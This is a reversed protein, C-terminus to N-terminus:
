FSARVGLMYQTQDTDFVTAGHEIRGTLGWMPTARYHLGLAISTTGGFAGYSGGDYRNLMASGEIAEGLTARVGVAGRAGDVTFDATEAEYDFRAAVLEAVFDVRESLGVHYGLGLETYREDYRYRAGPFSGFAMVEVDGSGRGYHGILSVGGGVEFAGRIYGGDPEVAWDSYDVHQYGAEVHTYSREAATAFPAAAVLMAALVVKKM